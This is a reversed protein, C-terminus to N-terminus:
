ANNKMECGSTITMIDQNKYYIIHNYNKLVINSSLDLVLYKLDVDFDLDLCPLM